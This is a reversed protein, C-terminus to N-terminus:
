GCVHHPELVWDRGSTGESKASSSPFPREGHDRTETREDTFYPSSLRVQHFGPALVQQFCSLVKRVQARAGEQEHWRQEKESDIVCVCPCEAIQGNTRDM